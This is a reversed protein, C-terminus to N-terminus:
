RLENVYQAFYVRGVQIKMSIMRPRISDEDGQGSVLFSGNFCHFRGCLDLAQLYDNTQHRTARGYTVSHGLDLMAARVANSVRLTNRFATM